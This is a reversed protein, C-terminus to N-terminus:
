QLHTIETFGEKFSPPEYSNVMNEIIKYEIMKGPRSDLRKQLEIRDPTPFVIAVRNTYFEPIKALKAKRSKITLNTQDWIIPARYAIALELDKYMLNSAIHIYEKFVESYTKNQSKAYIDIYADSSLIHFNSYCNGMNAIHSTKGSGPVGILMYFNM